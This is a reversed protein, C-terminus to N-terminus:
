PPSKVRVVGGRARGHSASRDQPWPRPTRAGNPVRVPRRLHVFRPELWSRNEVPDIEDLRDLAALARGEYFATVSSPAVEKWHRTTALEDEYRGLLHYADGAWSNTFEAITPIGFPSPGLHEFTEVALRPRNAFLACQLTAMRIVWNDHGSNQVWEFQASAATGTTTSSPM